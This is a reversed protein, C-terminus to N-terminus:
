GWTVYTIRTIRDILHLYKHRNVQTCPHKSLCIPRHHMAATSVHIMDSIIESSTWIFGGWADIASVRIVNQHDKSKAHLPKCQFSWEMRCGDVGRQFLYLSARQWDPRHVTSLITQTNLSPCTYILGRFVATYLFQGLTSWIVPDRWKGLYCISRSNQRGLCNQNLNM